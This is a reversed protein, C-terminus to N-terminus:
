MIQSVQITMLIHQQPFDASPLQVNKDDAKWSKRSRWCLIMVIMMIIIVITLLLTGVVTGIFVAVSVSGDDNDSGNGDSSVVTALPSIAFCSKWPDVYQEM